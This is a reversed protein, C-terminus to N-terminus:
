DNMNNTVYSLLHFVFISFWLQNVVNLAKMKADLQRNDNELEMDPASMM